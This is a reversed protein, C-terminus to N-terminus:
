ALLDDVLPWLRDMEARLGDQAIEESALSLNLHAGTGPRLALSANIKGQQLERNAIILWGISRTKWVAYGMGPLAQILKRFAEDASYEPYSRDEAYTTM